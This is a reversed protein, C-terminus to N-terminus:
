KTVNERVRRLGKDTDFLRELMWRLDEIQRGASQWITPYAAKVEAAFKEIHKGQENVAIQRYMVAIDDAIKKTEAATKDINASLLANELIQGSVQLDVIEIQQDITGEQLKNWYGISKIEEKLKVANNVSTAIQADSSEAQIYEMITNLRSQSRTLEEQAKQNDIGQGLSKTQMNTLDTDAGATKIADAEAKKANAKNLEVQSAELALNSQMSLGAPSPAGGSAAGGGGSVSGGQGSQKMMLAPNFGASEMHKRQAGFNTANWMALGLDYGQQNLRRQNRFQRQMLERQNRMARRDRHRVNIGDLIQQGINGGVNALMSLTNSM